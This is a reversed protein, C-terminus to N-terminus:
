KNILLFLPNAGLRTSTGSCTPTAESFSFALGFGQKLKNNEYYIVGLAHIDDIECFNYIVLVSHQM